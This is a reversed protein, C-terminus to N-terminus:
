ILKAAKELESSYQSEQSIADLKGFRMTTALAYTGLAKDGAVSFSRTACLTSLPITTDIYPCLKWVVRPAVAM